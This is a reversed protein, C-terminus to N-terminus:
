REKCTILDFEENDLMGGRTDVYEDSLFFMERIQAERAKGLQTKLSQLSNLAMERFANLKEASELASSEQVRYCARLWFDLYPQTLQYGSETKEVLEALQLFDMYTPLSTAKIGSSKAIASLRQNGLAISKLIQLYRGMNRRRFTAELTDKFHIFLTGDTQFSEKEIAELIIDKPVRSFDKQTCKQIIPELLVNTFFPFGGTLTVLFSLGLEGIVLGNERLRKLIYERADEVSFARVRQIDFHGFLPAKGSELIEKMMGVESGAVIYNVAKDTLIRKRFGDIVPLDLLAVNQFEDIFVVIRKDENEVLAQPLTLTMELSKLEPPAALADSLSFLHEALSPKLEVAQVVQQKLSDLSDEFITGGKGKWRLFSLLCVNAYRIMFSSDTDEFMVYIYATLEGQEKKRQQSELLLSTKGAKRLGVLAFNKKASALSNLLDDRNFLESGTVPRQLIEM